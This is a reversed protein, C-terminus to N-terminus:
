GSGNSAGTHLRAIRHRHWSGVLNPMVKRHEFQWLWWVPRTADGCYQTLYTQIREATVPEGDLWPGTQSSHQEWWQAAPAPDPLLPGAKKKQGALGVAPQQDLVQGSMVQWVHSAVPALHPVSLSSFLRELAPRTSALWYAPLVWEPKENELALLTNLATADGLRAALGLAMVSGPTDVEWDQLPLAQRDALLRGIADTQEGVSLGTGPMAWPLDSLWPHADSFPAILDFLANGDTHDGRIPIALQLATEVAQRLDPDDQLDPSDLLAALQELAKSESDPDDSCLCSLLQAFVEAPKAHNADLYPGCHRLGALHGLLLHEATAATRAESLNSYLRKRRKYLSIVAKWHHHWGGATADMAM